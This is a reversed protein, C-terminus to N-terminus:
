SGRGGSRGAARGGSGGSGGRGRGGFGLPSSQAPRQPSWRGTALLVKDGESLGSVVEVLDGASLGTEIERPEPKGDPGPVLVRKRGGRGERVAAVPIVLADEKEAVIFRVTATMQSRFFDPVEGLSVKVGYTIVNSVNKGEHLIDTVTGVTKQDPYADLVVHAPMGRTVKGIDSEDVAAQVILRDSVAYLVTGADVTQGEVVNRLIVVGALPSLIPTAKYSDQWRKFEEPGKARAADLVAARDSSSMSAIVEGAKVRAGEDVLLRDVRGAIPPKVEIRNLPIVAGNAEVSSELRESTVTVTPAGEAPSRAKGKRLAYGGGALAAAAALAAAWRWRKKM